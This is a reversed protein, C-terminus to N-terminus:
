AVRCAAQFRARLRELDLNLHEQPVWFAPRGTPKGIPPPRDHFWEERMGRRGLIYGQIRWTPGKGTVLVFVSNGDDGKHHENGKNLRLPFDHEPTTRVQLVGVDAARLNGFSGDWPYGLWKAVCAEGSAGNINWQWGDTTRKEPSGHGPHRRLLAADIQRECGVRSAKLWEERTLTIEVM